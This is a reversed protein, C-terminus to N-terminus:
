DKRRIKMEIEFSVNGRATIEARGWGAESTDVEPLYDTGCADFRHREGGVLTIMVNEPSKIRCHLDRKKGKIEIVDGNIIPESQSHILFTVKS